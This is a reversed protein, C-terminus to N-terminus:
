AGRSNNLDFHKIDMEALKLYQPSFYLPWTIGAPGGRQKLLRAIALQPTVKIEQGDLDVYSDNDETLSPRWVGILKDAVQEIASAWQCDSATPIKRDYKDVDRRAQVPLVLPCGIRDALENAGIIAETVQQVREASREIPIIQVYDIVIIAPKVGWEDEILMLSDYINQITLRPTMKRRVSSNGLMWVPLAARKLSQTLVQKEDIELRSLQTADYSLDDPLEFLSELEEITQELTVYVACQSQNGALALDLAVKRALYAGITSKGHGPRAIIGVIDGPKLPNLSRDIIPIGTKLGGTKRQERYYDVFQVGCDNPTHVLTKLEDKTTM